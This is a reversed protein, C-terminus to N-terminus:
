FFLTDGPKVGEGELSGSVIEAIALKDEVRVVNLKAVFDKGRHVFAQYNPKIALDGKDIVVYQWEKNVALVLGKAGRVEGTAVGDDGVAGLRCRDYDDQALNREQIITELDIELSALNNNLETLDANKTRIASERNRKDTELNAVQRQGSSLDDKSKALAVKLNEEQTKAAALERERTALTDKTDVLTRKTTTLENNRQTLQSQRQTSFRAIDDLEEKLGALGLSSTPQSFGFANTKIEEPSEWAVEEGWKLNASLQSVTNQLEIAEAKLVKRESFSKIGLAIVGASLLLNLIIFTKLAKGM